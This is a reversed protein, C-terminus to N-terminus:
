ILEASHDPIWTDQDSSLKIHLWGPRQEILDFEVGSGLPESFSEPYNNGDGQRAVISDATIVGSRYTTLVYQEVSVSAIM